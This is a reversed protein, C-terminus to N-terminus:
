AVAKASPQSSRAEDFYSLLQEARRDGTHEDLTRQRSREAARQLDRDPTGLAELVDESSRAVFVEDKAFFAHLGEWCDTVLPTGCAAAEFLRGSPCYGFRAMSDRTVNLTLRSSSYLAPHDGPAIHDFLRVNEPWRWQWPYLSGALTFHEASLRRAPELFLRDVKEQRDEAYTGMYSLSCRFDDRLPVRAHVDPDVCGFLPRALRARWRDRLEVLTEGGTFSLLLDWAPIQDARLYPVAGNELNQLTVPTDLDYFVHLPGPLGLVEDGIRAGEPCYSAVIVADSEAAEALARSRVEDWSGYIVLDCYSCETFDRRLSYYETDREYFSIRHGRRHLAKVIARYPTAHGNGWSSSITLGFITIKLGM